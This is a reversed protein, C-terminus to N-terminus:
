DTRNDSHDSEKGSLQINAPQRHTFASFPSVIKPNAQTKKGNSITKNTKGVPDLTVRNM